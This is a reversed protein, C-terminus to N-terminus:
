LCLGSNICLNPCNILGHPEVPTQIVSKTNRIDPKLETATEDNIILISQVFGFFFGLLMKLNFTM